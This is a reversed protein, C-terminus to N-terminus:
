MQYLLSRVPCPRLGGMGRRATGFTVAWADVALTGTMANSYLPGNFHPKLTAISGNIDVRHTYHMLAVPLRCFVSLCVVSTDDVVCTSRLTTVNAQFARIIRRDNTQLRRSRTGSPLCVSM